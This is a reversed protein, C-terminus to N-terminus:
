AGEDEADVADELEAEFADEFAPCYVNPADVSEM